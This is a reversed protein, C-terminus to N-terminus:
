WDGKKRLMVNMGLYLIYFTYMILLPIFLLVSTKQKLFDAGTKILIFDILLKPIFLILFPWLSILSLLALCLTIFLAVHYIGIFGWIIRIFSRKLGKNKGAWRIRQRLLTSWSEKAATIAAAEYSKVFGIRDGIKKRMKEILFMDDGSAYHYNGEYGNVDTFATKAFAMNAGNAIDHLASRIGAATIVMFAQNETQQMQTILDNKGTLIIPATLFLHSASEVAFAMTRLWDPGHTCDADCVVIWEHTALHVGLTIGSKKYAPAHIFEPFDKLDFLRITFSHINRVRGITDDSSRDNIVLIEFFGKPYHQALIGNLCHAINNEENRAVIIISFKTKPTFTSPVSLRPTKKWYFLYYCQLFVYLSALLIAPAAFLM